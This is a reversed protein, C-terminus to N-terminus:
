NIASSVKIKSNDVVVVIMKSMRIRNCFLFWIDWFFCRVGTKPQKEKPKVMVCQGNRFLYNHPHKVCELFIPWRLHLSKLCGMYSGM